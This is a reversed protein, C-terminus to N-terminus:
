AAHPPCGGEPQSTVTESKEEPALKCKAPNAMWFLNHIETHKLRLLLGRNGKFYGLVEWVNLPDNNYIVHSFKPFLEEWPQVREM